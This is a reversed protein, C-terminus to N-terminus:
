LYILSEAWEAKWPTFLLHALPYRSAGTLLGLLVATATETLLMPDRVADLYWSAIGDIRVAYLSSLAVRPQSLM